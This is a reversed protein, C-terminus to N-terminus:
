IGDLVVVLVPFTLGVSKHGQPVDSPHSLQSGRDREQELTRTVAIGSFHHTTEAVREFANDFRVPLLEGIYAQGQCRGLTGAGPQPCDIRQRAEIIGPRFLHKACGQRPRLLDGPQCLLAEIPQVASFRLLSAPAVSWAEPHYVVVWCGDRTK